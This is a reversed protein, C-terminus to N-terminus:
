KNSRRHASSLPINAAVCLSWLYIPRGECQAVYLDLLIDWAPESFLLAGLESDRRKRLRYLRRAVEVLTGGPKAALVPSRGGPM